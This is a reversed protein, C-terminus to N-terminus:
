IGCVDWQDFMHLRPLRKDIYRNLKLLLKNFNCANNTSFRVCIHGSTHSKTWISLHSLLIVDIYHMLNNHNKLPNEGAWLYVYIM